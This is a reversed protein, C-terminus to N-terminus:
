NPISREANIYGAGYSFEDGWRDANSKLINKVDDPSLNPNNELMLAAVGACIPTAMSTGSLSIYGEGVRANKQLKDIYSGPSRLSIINVGPAVIDPKVVNYITPGRSSFSAITDDERPLTNKDDMAGVTIIKSSIGPSAITRNNPGSNGAAVCVVMGADWAKNVMEVMPDDTEQRYSPNAQAGLSMSLIDIGLSDKNEICWQVGEMVTELSGSGLKNLVKVGIISANPAPGRYLGGSMAGNGAADGACHTGHGNDDYAETRNNIFDQFGVIRGELDDHQYIGTDIVAITVGSGTLRTNNRIINEANIAPTAVDLLARVEYNYYVKKIRNCNTLLDELAAATVTASCANIFQFHKRLECRTHQGVIKQVTDVQEVFNCDEFKIIVSLTRTKKLLNELPGHLFCPTWKFPRYLSILEERLHYDLKDAYKRVMKVMSFGFM